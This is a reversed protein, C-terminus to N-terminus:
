ELYGVLSAADFEETVKIIIIIHLSWHLVFRSRCCSFLIRQGTTGGPRELGLAGVCHLAAAVVVTSSVVVDVNPLFDTTFICRTVM